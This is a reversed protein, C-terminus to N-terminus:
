EIRRLERVNKRGYWAKCWASSSNQSKEPFVMGHLNTTDAM